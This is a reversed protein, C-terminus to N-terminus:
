SETEDQDAELLGRLVPHKGDAEDLEDEIPLRRPDLTDGLSCCRFLVVGLFLLLWGSGSGSGAAVAGLARTAIGGPLLLLGRALARAFPPLFPLLAASSASSSSSSSRLTLSSLSDIM